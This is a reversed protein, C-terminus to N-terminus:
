LRSVEVPRGEQLSASPSQIVLEDGKLGSVVEVETGVQLGIVIPVRAAQGNRAIWCSAQKGDRVIASLPLVYANPREQLLIHTMAYMGPRLLGNPNPLDLETRLTRNPGLIWSTRAVKGEVIQDPLAQVRVYGTRGPEVMPAQMESVDVFIRVIETRAVAVLPKATSTSAPQVFDGRDVNRETVV